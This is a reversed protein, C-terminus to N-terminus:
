FPFGSDEVVGCQKSDFTHGDIKIADFKFGADIIKKAQELAASEKKKWKEAYKLQDIHYWLGQRIGRSVEQLDRIFSEDDVSLSACMEQIKSLHSRVFAMRDISTDMGPKEDEGYRVWTLLLTYLEVDHYSICEPCVPESEKSDKFVWYSIQFPKFDAKCVACQANTIVTTRRIGLNVTGKERLKENM